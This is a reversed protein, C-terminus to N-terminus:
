VQRASRWPPPPVGDTLYATLAQDGWQLAADCRHKLGKQWQFYHKVQHAVALLVTWRDAFEM